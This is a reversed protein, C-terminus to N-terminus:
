LTAACITVGPSLSTRAQAIMPIFTKRPKRYPTQSSERGLASIAPATSSNSRLPMAAGAESGLRYAGHRLSLAGTKPHAVTRPISNITLIQMYMWMLTESGAWDSEFIARHSGPEKAPNGTDQEVGVKCDDTRGDQAVFRTVSRKKVNLSYRCIRM